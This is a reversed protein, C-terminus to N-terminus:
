PGALVRCVYMFFLGRKCGYLQNYLVWPEPLVHIPYKGELGFTRRMEVPDAVFVASVPGIRDRFVPGLQRHRMDVYEHLRPASGAAILSLTSGLLPLGRPCPMADLPLAASAQGHETRVTTMRATTGGALRSLGALGGARRM